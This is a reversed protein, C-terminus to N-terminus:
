RAQGPDLHDPIEPAAPVAARLAPRRERPQAAIVHRFLQVPQDHHPYHRVAQAPVPPGAIGPGPPPSPAPGGFAIPFPRNELPNRAITNVSRNTAPRLMFESTVPSPQSPASTERPVSAPAQACAPASSTGSSSAIVARDRPDHCRCASSVVHRTRAGRSPSPGAFHHSHTNRPRSVAQKTISRLQAPVTRARWAPMSSSM